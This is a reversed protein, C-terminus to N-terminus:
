GAHDRQDAHGRRGRGAPAERDPGRARLGLRRPRSVHVQLAPRASAGRREPRVHAQARRQQAGLAAAARPRVVPPRPREPRRPRRRGPRHRREARTESGAIPLCSGSGFIIMYQYHRVFSFVSVNSSAQLSDLADMNVEYLMDLNGRLLEAWAARVSPYSTLLIRDITPRGLYYDPNATLESAAQRRFSRARHGVGDKGPKQITTELAEIVLPSPRRLAFRIQADDVAIIEDVDDFATGMVRPLTEQLIPVVVAQRSPRATTSGPRSAFSCPSPCATQRPPGAKPWGPVHVGTRTSTSWARSRCTASSRSCGLKLRLARWRGVGVRLTTETASAIPGASQACRATGLLMLSWGLVGVVSRPGAHRLANM